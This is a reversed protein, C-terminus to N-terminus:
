GPAPVAAFSEVPYTMPSRCKGCRPRHFWSASNSPWPAHRMLAGCAACRVDRNEYNVSADSADFPEEALYGHEERHRLELALFRLAQITARSVDPSVNAVIGPALEVHTM